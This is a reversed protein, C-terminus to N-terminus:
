DETGIGQEIEEKEVASIDVWVVDKALELGVGLESLVIARIHEFWQQCTWSKRGSSKFGRRGVDWCVAEGGRYVYQYFPQGGGRLVLILEDSSLMEVKSIAEVEM